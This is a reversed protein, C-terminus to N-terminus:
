LVLGEDGLQIGPTGGGGSWSIEGGEIKIAQQNFLDEARWVIPKTALHDNQM